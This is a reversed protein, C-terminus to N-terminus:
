RSAAYAQGLETKIQDGGGSRWAAVASDLTSIDARGFLISNVADTMAQALTARKAADTVSYLGVSPDTVAYQHLQMMQPQAQKVFNPDQPNIVIPPPNVEGNWASYQVDSTGQKTLSPNNNADLTYDADKVGSNNLLYEQTGFPTSFYDLIHLLETIRDTSAKKLAALQVVGSTQFQQPKGKGDASFPPIINMKFDKNITLVRDWAIVYAFLDTPYTAMKGAYFDAAGAQAQYTPTNPHILGQDWLSRLYQVASKYQPTEWDKTFKGSSDVAWNNPAGFMALVYGMTTAQMGGGGYVSGQKTVQKFFATLEDSTSISKVGAQDLLNQQVLLCGGVALTLRPLALIKNGFVGTKWVSPPYNALNPFQKVNDGSLFPTLDAMQANLFDLEQNVRVGLVDMTLVDPLDGSAIITPLKTNYDQLATYPLKLNVGLNKNIAQWAANQEVPTPPPNISYTFFTVDEGKGVPGKWTQVLNSPYSTYGPPVVGDQSGAFDPKPGQFPVYTPLQLGGAAPKAAASAPAASGAPSAAVAGSASAPAATSPKAAASAATSAPSAPTSAPSSAPSSVSASGGCAALLTAAGAAASLRIFGRRSLGSPVTSAPDHM